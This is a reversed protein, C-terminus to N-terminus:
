RSKVAYAYAEFAFNFFFNVFPTLAAMLPLMVFFSQLTIEISSDGYSFLQLSVWGATSIIKWVVWVFLFAIGLLLLHSFPDQCARRLSVRWDFDESAAYEPVAFFLLFLAAILLLFIGLQLLFPGFALVIGLVVGLYPIAKLLFFVGLIIWFGVLAALLLLVGYSTRLFGEHSSKFLKILDVEEGKLEQIYAKVLVIGSCMLLTSISLLSVYYFLLKFWVHTYIGIGQLFLFIFGSAVLVLFLSIFKKLDFAHFLARNFMESLNKITM